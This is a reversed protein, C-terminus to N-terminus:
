SSESVPRKSRPAPSRVREQSENRLRRRAARVEAEPHETLHWFSERQEEITQEQSPALSLAFLRLAIQLRLLIAATDLFDALQWKEVKLTPDTLGRLRLLSKPHSRHTAWLAHMVQNRKKSVKKVRKSLALFPAATKKSFRMSLAAYIMDLRVQLSLVKGLTAAAIAPETKMGAVYLWTLEEEIESWITSIVGIHAM